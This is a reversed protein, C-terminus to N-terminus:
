ERINMVVKKGKLPDKKVVIGVETKIGEELVVKKTGEEILVRAEGLIFIHKNDNYNFRKKKRFDPHEEFM